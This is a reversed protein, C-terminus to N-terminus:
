DVLDTASSSEGFGLRNCAIISTEKKFGVTPSFVTKDLVVPMEPSQQYNVISHNDRLRIYKSILVILCHYFLFMIALFYWRM